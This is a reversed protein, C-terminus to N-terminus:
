KPPFGELLLKVAEGVRESKKEPSALMDVEGKAIGRWVLKKSEAHIVDLLLTGEEYERKHVSTGGVWGHRGGAGGYYHNDIVTVDIKTEVAAYYVLLFDPAEEVAEIGRPKLERAVAEEIRASLLDSRLPFGHATVVEKSPQQWQYKKSASFDHKPDHDFNVSIPASCGGALLVLLLCTVRNM